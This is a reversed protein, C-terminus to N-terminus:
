KRRSEGHMGSLKQKGTQLELFTQTWEYLIQFIKYNEIFAKPRLVFEHSSMILCFIQIKEEKFEFSLGIM